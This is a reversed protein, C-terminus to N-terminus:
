RLRSTIVIVEATINASVIVEATINYTDMRVPNLFKETLGNKIGSM